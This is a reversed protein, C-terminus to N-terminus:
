KKRLTIYYSIGINPTYGFKMSNGAPYVGVALPSITLAWGSALRTKTKPQNAPKNETWPKDLIEANRFNIQLLQDSIPAILRGNSDVYYPVIKTRTFKTKSDEYQSIVLDFNLKFNKIDTSDPIVDFTNNNKVIKFKSVGNFSRVSDFSTFHLGYLGKDKDFILNNSLTVNEPVYQIKTLTIQKSKINYLSDIKKHALYLQSDVSALQKSTLKLQISSDSIAALNQDAIHTTQKLQAKAEKTKNCQQQLLIFLFVVVGILILKMNKWIFNLVGLFTM